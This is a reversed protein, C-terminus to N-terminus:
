SRAKSAARQLEPGSVQRYDPLLDSWGVPAYSTAARAVDGAQLPRTPGIALDGAWQRLAPKDALAPGGLRLNDYTPRTWPQDDAQPMAPSLTTVRQGDSRYVGTFTTDRKLSMGLWWTGHGYGMALAGLSDVPHIPLDDLWALTRVAIVAIRLGTFSGPGAAVALARPRGYAAIAAALAPALDGAARGCGTPLDFPLDDGTENMACVSGGNSLAECALIYSMRAWWHASNGVTPLPLSRNM